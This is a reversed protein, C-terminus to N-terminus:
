KESLVKTLSLFENKDMMSLEYKFELPLDMIKTLRHIATSYKVVKSHAEEGFIILDTLDEMRLIFKIGPEYHEAM